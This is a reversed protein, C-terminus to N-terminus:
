IPWGQGSKSDQQKWSIAELQITYEIQGYLYYLVGCGIM